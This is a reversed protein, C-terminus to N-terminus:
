SCNYFNAISLLVSKARYGRIIILRRQITFCRKIEFYDTFACELNVIRSVPNGPRERSHASLVHVMM